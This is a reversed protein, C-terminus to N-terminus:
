APPTGLVALVEEGYKRLKSDGVGPVRLLEALTAPRAIAIANLTSDHFIVFAPLGAAQATERRWRRLRDVIEVPAGAATAAGASSRSAEAPLM